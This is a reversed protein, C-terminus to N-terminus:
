SISPGASRDVFFRLNEADADGLRALEHCVDILVATEAGDTKLKRVLDQVYHTGELRDDNQVLLRLLRAAERPYTHCVASQQLRYYATHMNRGTPKPGRLILDVAQPFKDELEMAWEVMLVIEEAGLEPGTGLRSRWYSEIWRTWVDRRKGEALSSLFLRVASAWRRRTQLATAKIFEPLWGSRMPDVAGYLAIGAMLECFSEARKGLDNEIRHFTTRCYPLFQELLDNDWTGWGLYGHWAQQAQREGITWDFLKLVHENAWAADLEFLMHLLAAVVVRGMEAAWSDGRIVSELFGRDDDSLGRWASGAAKKEQWLMRLFFEAIKGGQSNISVCLWDAPSEMTDHKISELNRWVQEGLRTALRFPTGQFPNSDGATRRELLEVIQDLASIVVLPSDLILSLIREWQDSSLDDRNWGAVMATWLVTDWHDRERLVAALELGWEPNEAVARRVAAVLEDRHRPEAYKSEYTLLEDVQDAAQRALLDKPGPPKSDEPQTSATPLPMKALQEAVRACRPDGSNLAVLMGHIWGARYEGADEPPELVTDIVRDKM